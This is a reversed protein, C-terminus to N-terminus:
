PCPPRWIRPASARRGCSTAWCAPAARASPPGTRWGSGPLPRMTWCDAPRSGTWWRTLSRPRRRTGRGPEPAGRGHQAAPLVPLDAGPRLGEGGLRRGAPQALEEDSIEQGRHLGAQMVVSLDLAAAYVGDVHVNIRKPNRRQAVLRTITGTMRRECDSRRRDRPWLRSFVARLPSDQPSPPQLQQLSGERSGVRPARGPYPVLAPVRRRRGVAGVVKVVPLRVRRVSRRRLRGIMAAPAPLLM